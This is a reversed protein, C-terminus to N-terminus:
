GWETCESENFDEIKFKKISPPLNDGYSEFESSYTWPLIHTVGNNDMLITNKDSVHTEQSKEDQLRQYLVQFSPQVFDQKIINKTTM